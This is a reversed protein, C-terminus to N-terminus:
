TGVPENLAKMAKSIERDARDSLIKMTEPNDTMAQMKATTLADTKSGMNAYSALVERVHSHRGTPFFDTIADEIATLM